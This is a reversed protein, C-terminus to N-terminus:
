ADNLVSGDDARLSCEPDVRQHDAAATQGLLQPVDAASDFSRPHEAGDEAPEFPAGLEDRDAVDSPPVIVCPPEVEDGVVMALVSGERSPSPMMALRAFM